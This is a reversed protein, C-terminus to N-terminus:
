FQELYNVKIKRIDKIGKYWGTEMNKKMIVFVDQQRRLMYPTPKAPNFRQPAPLSIAILVSEGQTLRSAPKDFYHQAAAEIGYVNQGMEVVNLYVEMIRAKGWLAEMLITFGAELAKRRWTREPTLFVNKATQQTITSAGYTRRSQERNRQLAWRIAELDFGAHYFFNNDETSIVARMVDLAISDLPVWQKQPPKKYAQMNMMILPTTRIEGSRMSHVTFLLGLVAALVVTLVVRVAKSVALHLYYLINLYNKM